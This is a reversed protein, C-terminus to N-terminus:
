DVCADFKVEHQPVRSCHPAYYSGEAKETQAAVFLSPGQEFALVTDAARSYEAM